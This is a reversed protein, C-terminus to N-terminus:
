GPLQWGAAPGVGPSPHGELLQVGKTSQTCGPARSDWCPFLRWVEGSQNENLKQSLSLQKYDIGALKNLTGNGTLLSSQTPGGEQRPAAPPATGACHRCLCRLLPIERAGVLWGIHQALQQGEGRFEVGGCLNTGGALLM